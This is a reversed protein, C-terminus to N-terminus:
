HKLDIRTLTDLRELKKIFYEIVKIYDKYYDCDGINESNEVNEVNANVVGGIYM